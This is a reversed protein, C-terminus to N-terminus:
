RGGNVPIVAGNLYNTDITLVKHVVEAIEAPDARRKMPIQSQEYERAQKPSWGRLEPVTGDIYRTMGTEDTMGPAVVNIAFKDSAWERAICAVATHLAAKSACYAVSTRMPRWAADSGIVVVRKPPIFCAQLVNILGLVNVQIMYLMEDADVTELWDLKTIGVSYVIGDFPGHTEYHRRLGQKGIVNLEHGTISVTSEGNIREACAVGIGTTGGVVWVKDLKM